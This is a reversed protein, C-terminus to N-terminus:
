RRPQRPCFNNQFGQNHHYGPQGRSGRHDQSGRHHDDTMDRRTDGSEYRLSSDQQYRREDERYRETEFEEREPRRESRFEERLQFLEDRLEFIEDELELLSEEDVDERLIEQYEYNLAVLRQNMRWIDRQLEAQEEDLEAPAQREPPQYGSAAWSGALVLALVMIGAIVTSKKNSM